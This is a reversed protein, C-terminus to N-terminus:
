LVTLLKYTFIFDCLKGVNQHLICYVLRQESCHIADYLPGSFDELVFCTDWTGDNIFEAGTASSVVPV